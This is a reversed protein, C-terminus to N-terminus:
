HCHTVIMQMLVTQAFILGLLEVRDKVNPRQNQLFVAVPFMLIPYIYLCTRATQATRYAGTLFMVLLTGIGLISIVFLDPCSKDKAMNKLGSFCAILVFPGLYAILEFVCLVRTVLYNLPAAFLQFGNPNELSSAVFFSQIYNFGLIIYLMVYILALSSFIVAFRYISKRRILEYGLLVPGIFLFGFTMFSIVFLCVISGIIGMVSNRHSYFYISGLCATAILADISACYYIQVAPIMFFLLTTYRSIFRGFYRILVLYLFFSTLCVSLLTMVVSIAAPTRVSKWLGYMMLVPGPPHTRANPSLLHAQAANFNKLFEAPSAITMADHYYYPY